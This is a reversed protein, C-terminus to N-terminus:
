VFHMLSSQFVLIHKHRLCSVFSVQDIARGVHSSVIQALKASLPGSLMSLLMNHATLVRTSILSAYAVSVEQQRKLFLGQLTYCGLDIPEVPEFILKLAIWNTFWGGVGGMLPLIWWDRRFFYIGMQLLGFAFGIWAGSIKIFRFEKAGCTIFIENLLEKDQVLATTVMHKIDFVHDINDQVEKMLDAVTTPADDVAKQIMGTKVAVPLKPWLYPSMKPGIDAFTEELLPRLTPQLEAAVRLPDLRGFVENMKILKETMLDVAKTAMKIAKRPVIGQAFL